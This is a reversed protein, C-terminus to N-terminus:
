TDWSGYLGINAYSYGSGREYSIHSMNALFRSKTHNAAKAAEAAKVARQNAVQMKQNVDALRHNATELRQRGSEVESRAQESLEITTYLHRTNLQLMWTIAGLLMAPALTLVPILNSPGMQDPRLQARLAMVCIWLVISAASWRLARHPLEVVLAIVTFVTLLLAINFVLTAELLLASLGVTLLFVSLFLNIAIQFRGREALLLCIRCFLAANAHIALIAYGTTSPVLFLQMFSRLCVIALFTRFSYTLLRVLTRQRYELIEHKGLSM